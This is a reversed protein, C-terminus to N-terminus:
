TQTFLRCIWWRVTMWIRWWHRWIRRGSGIDELQPQWKWSRTTTTSRKHKTEHEVPASAGSTTLRRKKPSYKWFGFHFNYFCRPQEPASNRRKKWKRPMRNTSEPTCLNIHKAPAFFRASEHLYMHQLVALTHLDTWAEIQALGGLTGSSNPFTRRLLYQLYTFRPDHFSTEKSSTTHSKDKSENTLKQRIYMACKRWCHARWQHGTPQDM